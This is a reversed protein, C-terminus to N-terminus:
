AEVEEVLGDEDFEPLDRDLNKRGRHEAASRRRLAATSASDVVDELDEVEWCASESM